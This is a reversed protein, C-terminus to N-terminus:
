KPTASRSFQTVTRGPSNPSNPEKTKLWKSSDRKVDGILDPIRVHKNMSMLLHSHNSTGNAAILKSDHNNIIGGIYAYLEEEIEPSIFAFRDKTSFVVHLYVCVLTQAM